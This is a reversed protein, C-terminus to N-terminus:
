LSSLARILTNDEKKINYCNFCTGSTPIFNESIVYEECFKCKITNPNPSSSITWFLISNTSDTSNSM